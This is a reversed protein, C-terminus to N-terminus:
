DLLVLCDLPINTIIKRLEAVDTDDDEWGHLLMTPHIMSMNCDGWTFPHDCSDFAERAGQVRDLIDSLRVYRQTHVEM